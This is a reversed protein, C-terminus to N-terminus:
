AYTEQSTKNQHMLDGAPDYVKVTSWQSANSYVYDMADRDTEFFFNNVNLGENFWQYFEVRYKNNM